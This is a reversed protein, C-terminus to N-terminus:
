RILQYIGNLHESFKNLLNVSQVFQVSFLTYCFHTKYLFEGIENVTKDNGMELRLSVKLCSGTGGALTHSM